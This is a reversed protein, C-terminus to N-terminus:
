NLEVVNPAAWVLEELNDFNLRHNSMDEKMIHTNITGVLKVAMTDNMLTLARAVMQDGISNGGGAVMNDICIPGKWACIFEKVPNNEEDVVIKGNKMKNARKVNHIFVSVSQRDSANSVERAKQIKWDYLQGKVFLIENNHPSWMVQEENFDYRSSPYPCKSSTGEKFKKYFLRDPFKAVMESILEKARREVIDRTRNQKLFAVMLKLEGESPERGMLRTYLKKPSLSHWKGRRKNYRYSNIFTNLDKQLIEGWVSDSIELAYKSNSIQQVNLRVDNRNYDEYFHYPVRNEIAYRINEPTNIYKFYLPMLNTVGAGHSYTLRSLVNSCFELGYASGNLYYKTDKSVLVSFDGFSLIAEFDGSHKLRHKYANVIGKHIADEGNRGSELDIHQYYSMPGLRCAHNNKVVEVGVDITKGNVRLKM